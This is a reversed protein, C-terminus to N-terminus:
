WLLVLNGDFNLCYNHVLLKYIDNDTNAIIPDSNTFLVLLMQKLGVESGCILLAPGDVRIGM